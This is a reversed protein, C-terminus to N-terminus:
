VSKTYESWIVESARVWVYHAHAAHSRFPGFRQFWIRYLLLKTTFSFFSNKTYPPNKFHTLGSDRLKLLQFTLVRQFVTEELGSKGEHFM